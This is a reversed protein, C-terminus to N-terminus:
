IAGPTSRYACKAWAKMLVLLEADATRSAARRGFLRWERRGVGLRMTMRAPVPAHRSLRRARLFDVPGFGNSHDRDCQSGGEAPARNGGIWLLFGGMVIAPAIWGRNALACVGLLGISSNGFGLERVIPLAAKDKVGFITDATFTPNAVQCLGTLILRIRGVLLRVMKRGPLVSRFEGTAGRMPKLGLFAEDAAPTM